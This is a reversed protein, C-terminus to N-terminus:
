SKGDPKRGLLRRFQEIEEPTCRGGAVLALVLPGSAGECLESALADLRQRLLDDRTVAARFVHAWTGKDGAVYGKAELRQLMTWVTNHAWDRGQGQLLEKVERVTGPGHDWLVKMVDMESASINPQQTGV